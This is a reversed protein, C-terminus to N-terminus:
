EPKPKTIDAIWADHKKKKYSTIAYHLSAVYREDDPDHTMGNYQILNDGTGWFEVNRMSGLIRKEEDNEAIIDWGVTKGDEMILEIKM